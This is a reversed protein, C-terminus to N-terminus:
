RVTANLSGALKKIIKQHVSDAEESTLTKDLSRYTLRYAMSKKGEGVRKEDRYVDFLQVDELLQKGAKKITNLIKAASVDEDVVLALDFEIAPFQPIEKYTRMLQSLNVLQKCEFEFAVVQNEIDFAECVLPHIVGIWGISNGNVIVNVGCGPLIWAYSDDVDRLMYDEICLERLLNEVTGKADYFDVECAQTNWGKQSISGCMVGCLMNKEKVSYDDGHMQKTFVAGREFLFVDSVGRNVNYNVSRLLGPLISQRMVSMDSSMPNLLVVNNDADLCSLRAKEIDDKDALSYTMTENLGCSRLTQSIKKYIKQEKTKLGAVANHPLASEIKDMGYIRLVEEALDAARTLDFRFTPTEVTWVDGAETVMCGLDELIERQKQNSIDAGILDNTFQPNYEISWPEFPDPYVDIYEKCYTGGALETILACAINCAEDCLNPDVCREFRMSSESSLNLSHSTRTTHGMDFCASELLIDFTDDSVESDLGGMVGALAVAVDGNSIVAMDSNLTREIEDLTTFKEGDSAARVNINVKGDAGKNLKALDFAHLPQGLEFLIYNTADVVNNISRCNMATLREVLWEPSPGIKVGKIVNACYRYCLGSDKIEVDAYNCADDDAVAGPLACPAKYTHPVHYMAGIERAMGFQSLCDGRNPTIELDIITDGSALYDSFPMGIPTDAPLVMIGDHNDGLGLERESCIMGCSEVGRLKTKKIKTGDPMVSGLTVVCVKMDAAINPAGCVIQTDQGDGLDVICVHMHDSDPHDVCSKVYGVVFGEYTAGTTTGDEVGSGTLDLRDCFEKIDSPVEVFEKLWNLSILM